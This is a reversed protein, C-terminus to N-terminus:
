TPILIRDIEVAEADPCPGIEPPRQGAPTFVCILRAPLEGRRSWRLTTRHQRLGFEPAYWTQQARVEGGGLTTLFYSAEGYRIAWCTGARRLGDSAPLDMREVGVSPHFHIFSEVPHMGNGELSDIVVWCKKPTLVITRSHVVGRHQYAYHVGRVFHLEGIKGGELRGVRPRRGVRFGAWIEAQEEGDIRLTNHASTSREYYREACPEYSSVGTDVVVRQGDLSLEYSLVDCHGHGPQYDPGLPGCDFILCSGSSPDRVVGYGTERLLTVESGNSSPAEDLARTRALLEGASPAVGFASDNFLPIEGDPHLVSRLFGAMRIVCAMLVQAGNGTRGCAQGLAHLDLLDEMVEAAYMPSREIHGGDPLIQQELERRLLEAGKSRWHSSEPADLLAGAFMLAKINKLLHNALLHTELRAELALAQIRLSALLAEITKGEGLAEAAEANRLLFKLWNVIRLSLPYPEWGVERGTTNRACWDRAVDLARRLHSRHRPARFDANLFDFYNLNYLWLKALGPSSWPIAVSPSHAINLFRFEGTELMQLAQAPRWEPFAPAPSIKRLTVPVARWGRLGNHRLVRRQAQAALQGWRLHRVTRWYMGLTPRTMRPTAPPPNLARKVAVLILPEKAQRRWSEKSFDSENLPTFRASSLVSQWREGEFRNRSLQLYTAYSNIRRVKHLLAPLRPNLVTSHLLGEIRRVYSFPNPVSLLLIGEPRLVRWLETAAHQVDDLYEFVSSALVADFSGDAFPLVRWDPNVSVWEVGSGAHAARAVEIMREAIDCATAGYGIREIATAMEGTGCGFDLVRAPPPCLQSLRATFRELRPNLSGTQGYKRQWGAAKHNFLTRVENATTAVM